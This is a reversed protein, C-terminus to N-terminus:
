SGSRAPTPSPPIRIPKAASDSDSATADLAAALATM